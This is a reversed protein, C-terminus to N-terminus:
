AGKVPRFRDPLDTSEVRKQARIVLVDIQAEPEAPGAIAGNEIRAAPDEVLDGGGVVVRVGRELPPDGAVRLKDEPRVQGRAVQGGGDEGVGREQDGLAAPPHGPEPEDGEKEALDVGDAAGATDVRVALVAGVQGPLEM